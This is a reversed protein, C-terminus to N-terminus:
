KYAECLLKMHCDSCDERRGGAHEFRGAAIGELAARARAEIRDLDALSVEREVSLGSGLFHVSWRDVPRGIWRGAALAYLGLQFEHEEAAGATPASTKYDVIEWRGDAGEFVLDVTGGV